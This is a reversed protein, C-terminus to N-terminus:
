HFKSNSSLPWGHIVLQLRAYKALIAGTSKQFFNVVYNVNDTLHLFFGWVDIYCSIPPPTKEIQRIIDHPYTKPMELPTGKPVGSFFPPLL